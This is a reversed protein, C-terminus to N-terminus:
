LALSVGALCTFRPQPVSGLDYYRRATLNSMDLTLRVRRLTYSLRADLLAYAGYPHVQATPKLAEYVVYGGMRQQVRLAWTCDLRPALRHSLTAVFKHRLYELAYNSKYVVETDHRRQHAYAYSVTLRELPQHAGLLAPLHLATRLSFGLNDLRFATAHYLDDPHRMVWDIMDSGRTYYGTLSATLCKLRLDAGVRWASSKEPRLGINGEITPSKYWQDTFTPLRLARNWSAFLRVASLPRFSLDVGPYFGFRRDIASCRLATVGASLTWRSLLINHELYASQQVRDDRRTYRVGDAGPVPFTEAPPLARGLNTSFLEDERLEGGFATRGLPTDFWAGFAAAYSDGRNFNEGRPSHRTLQYHDENRLWSLRGSLHLGERQAASVAVLYRRTAEWQEPYAASYFTNAEFDQLSVAARAELRFREDEYGGRWFARGGRFASHRTAGDSRRYGASLNTSFGQPLATAVRAEGLLTGHSGETLSAALGAARGDAANERRAGRRTIINVAGSFAQAGLVRAAAGCLVEIREVDSLNVMFDTANHGTQANTLPIGDLLFLTQDFTGGEAAIDTQVGMAGRQRVDIGEVLKLADNISQVGAAALDRQTLTVVQRAVVDATLPARSATACAEGLLTSSVSDPDEAAAADTRVFILPRASGAALCPAATALTAASLVGVRVVRHLCAFLAYGKRGFCRFTLVARARRPSPYM